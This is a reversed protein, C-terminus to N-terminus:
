LRAPLVGDLEGAVGSVRRFFGCLFGALGGRGPCVLDAVGLSLRVCDELLPSLPCVGKRFVAGVGSSWECDLLRYFLPLACGLRYGAGASWFVGSLAVLSWLFFGHVTKRHGCWRHLPASLFFLLRGFTSRPHDIDPLISGLALLKLSLSDAGAFQGLALAFVIHTPPTMNPLQYNTTHLKSCTPELKQLCAAM